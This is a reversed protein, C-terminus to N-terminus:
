NLDLTKEAMKRSFKIRECVEMTLKRQHGFNAPPSPPFLLFLNISVIFHFFLTM